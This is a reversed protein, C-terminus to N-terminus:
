LSWICKTIHPMWHSKAMRATLLRCVGAAVTHFLQRFAINGVGKDAVDVVAANSGEIRGEEHSV